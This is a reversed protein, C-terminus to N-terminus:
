LQGALGFDWRGGPVVKNTTAASGGNSRMARTPLVEVYYTTASEQCGSMRVDLLFM